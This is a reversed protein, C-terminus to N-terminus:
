KRTVVLRNDMGMLKQKNTQYKLYGSFVLFKFVSILSYERGMMVNLESKVDTCNSCFLLHNKTHKTKLTLSPHFTQERLTGRVTDAYSPQSVHISSAELFGLIINVVLYFHALRM